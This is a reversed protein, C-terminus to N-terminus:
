KMKLMQSKVAATIDITNSMAVINPTKEFVIALNKQKRVEEIALKLKAHYPSLLDQVRKTYAPQNQKDFSAFEREKMQIQNRLEVRKAETLILKQTDYKESLDRLENYIKTKRDKFEKDLREINQKIQIAAPLEKSLEETDVVGIGSQATLSLVLTLTLAILKM